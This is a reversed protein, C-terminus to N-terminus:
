TFRLRYSLIKPSPFHHIKTTCKIVHLLNLECYLRKLVHGWPCFLPEQPPDKCKHRLTGFASDVFSKGVFSQPGIFPADIQETSPCKYIICTSSKLWDQSFRNVLLIFPGTITSQCIYCQHEKTKSVM